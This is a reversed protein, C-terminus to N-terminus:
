WCRNNADTQDCKRFREISYPTKTITMFGNSAAAPTSLDNDIECEVGNPCIALIKRGVKSDTKFRCGGALAAYEITTWEKGVKITGLCSRDGASAPATAAIALATAAALMLHKM